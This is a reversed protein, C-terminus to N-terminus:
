DNAKSVYEEMKSIFDNSLLFIGSQDKIIWGLRILQLCSVLKAIDEEKMKSGDNVPLRLVCPHFYLQVIVEAATDSLVENRLQHILEKPIKLLKNILIM